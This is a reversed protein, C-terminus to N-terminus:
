KKITQSAEKAPKKAEQKAAPELRKKDDMNLDILLLNSAHVPVKAKSGDKKSVEVGTIKVRSNKVDVIEIKGEKGTFKGRLVKVKDGIRVRVRRVKHKTALDDSLHINLMKAKLHLPANKQYKRQKRPKISAKWKTSFEKKM